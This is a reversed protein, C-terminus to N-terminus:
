PTPVHFLCHVLNNREAIRASENIGTRLDIATQRIGPIVSIEANLQLVVYLLCPPSLKHLLGRGVDTHVARNQHVGLGPNCGSMQRAERIRQHVALGASLTETRILQNLAICMLVLQRQVSRNVSPGVIFHHAKDILELNGARGATLEVPGVDTLEIQHELGELPYRLIGGVGDVKTRFRCLTNKDVKLIYLARRSLMQRKTDALDALGEAILNSGSVEGETGTLELLHLHFEEAFRIGIQLPELVPLVEAPVPQEGQSDLLLVKTETIMVLFLKREIGLSGRVDFIGEGKAVPTLQPANCVTGIVVQRLM